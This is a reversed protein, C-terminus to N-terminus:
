DSQDTRVRGAKIDKARKTARQYILESDPLVWCREITERGRTEQRLEEIRGMVYDIYSNDAM